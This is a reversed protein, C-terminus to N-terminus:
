SAATNVCCSSVLRVVKAKEVLEQVYNEGFDRQGAEYCVLIDSAPKYKSVAVLLPEKSSSGSVASAKYVRARIESLNEQLESTREPSAAEVGLKLPTTTITSM